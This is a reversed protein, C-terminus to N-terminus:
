AERRETLTPLSGRQRRLAMHSAIMDQTHKESDNTAPWAIALHLLGNAFSFTDWAVAFPDLHSSLLGQAMARRYAHEVQCLSCIIASNIEAQVRSFQDPQECHMAMNEYLQLVIPNEDLYRFFTLLALEIADLPDTQREPSLIGEIRDMVPALLARRLELLLENKDKFHWYISGRTLSAAKAVERMTTKAIGQECLVKKAADIIRLRTAVMQTECEQTMM